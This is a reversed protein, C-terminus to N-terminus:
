AKAKSLVMNFKDLGGTTESKTITYRLGGDSSTYNVKAEGPASWKLLEKQADLLETLQNISADIAENILQKLKPPSKEEDRFVRFEESSYMDLIKKLEDSVSSILDTAGGLDVQGKERQIQQHLEQLSSMGADIKASINLKDEESIDDKNLLYEKIENFRDTIKETKVLFTGLSIKAITKAHAGEITGLKQFVIDDGRKKQVVRASKLEQAPNELSLIARREQASKGNLQGKLESLYLKFVSSPAGVEGGFARIVTVVEGMIADRMKMLSAWGGYALAGGAEIRYFKRGATELKAPLKGLTEVASHIALDFMPDEVNKICKVSSDLSKQASVLSQRFEEVKPQSKKDSEGKFEDVKEILNPLLQQADAIKELAIPMPIVKSELVPAEALAKESKKLAEAKKVAMVRDRSVKERNAVVEADTMIRRSQSDLREDLLKCYERFEGKITEDFVKLDAIERAQSLINDLSAKLTTIERANVHGKSSFGESVGTVILLLSEMLAIIEAGANVNDKEKDVQDLKETAMDLLPKLRAITEATGEVSTKEAKGEILRKWTESETEDANDKKDLGGLVNAITDRFSEMLKTLKAADPNNDKVSTKKLVDGTVFERLSEMLAIAHDVNIDLACVQQKLESSVRDLQELDLRFDDSSVFDSNKYNGRREAEKEAKLKEVERIEDDLGAIKKVMGSIEVIKEEDTNEEKLQDLEAELDAKEKRKEVIIEEVAALTGKKDIAENISSIFKLAGSVMTKLAKEQETDTSQSFLATNTKIGGAFRKVERGNLVGGKGERLLEVVNREINKSRCFAESRFEDDMQVREKVAAEKIASLVVDINERRKSGTLTVERQSEGPVSWEIKGQENVKISEIRDLAGDITSSAQQVFEEVTASVLTTVQPM